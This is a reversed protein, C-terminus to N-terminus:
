AALWPVVEEYKSDSIRALDAGRPFWTLGAKSHKLSVPERRLMCYYGAPIEPDECCQSRGIERGLQSTAYERGDRFRTAAIIDDLMGRWWLAERAGSFPGCYRAADFLRQVDPADFADRHINLYSSAAIANVVVGPYRLVSDWLWYGFLNALRRHMEEKRGRAARLVSEMRHQDGSAYLMIKDSYERKNLIHALIRGPSKKGADRLAEGLVVASRRGNFPGSGHDNPPM